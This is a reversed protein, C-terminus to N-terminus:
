LTMAPGAPSIWPLKGGSSGSPWGRNGPLRSAKMASTCIWDLTIDSLSENATNPPNTTKRIITSATSGTRM